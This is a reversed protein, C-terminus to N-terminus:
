RIIIGCYFDTISTYVHCSHFIYIRDRDKCSEYERSEQDIKYGLEKSLFSRHFHEKFCGCTMNINDKPAKEVRGTM